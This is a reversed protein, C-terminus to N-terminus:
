GEAGDADDALFCIGEAHILLNERLHRPHRLQVNMASMPSFHRCKKNTM